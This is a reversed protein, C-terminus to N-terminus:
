GPSELEAVIDWRVLGRAVMKFAESAGRDRPLNTKREYFLRITHPSPPSPPLKESTPRWSLRSKRWSGTVSSARGPVQLEQPNTNTNSKYKYRFYLDLLYGLVPSCLNNYGQLWAALFHLSFSSISLCHPFASFRCILVCGRCVALRAYSRSHLLCIQFHM